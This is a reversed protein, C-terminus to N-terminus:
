CFQLRYINTSLSCLTATYLVCRNKGMFKWGLTEILLPMLSIQGLCISVLKKECSFFTLTTLASYYLLTYKRVRWNTAFSIFKNVMKWITRSIINSSCITKSKPQVMLLWITLPFYKWRENNCCKTSNKIWFNPVFNLFNAQINPYSSQKSTASYCLENKRCPLLVHTPMACRSALIHMMCM